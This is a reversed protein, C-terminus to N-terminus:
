SPLIVKLGPSVEFVKRMRITSSLNSSFSSDTSRAREFGVPVPVPRPLGLKASNFISSLSVPAGDVLGTSLGLKKTRWCYRSKRLRSGSVAPKLKQTFWIVEHPDSAFQTATRRMLTEAAKKREM